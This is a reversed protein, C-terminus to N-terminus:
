TLDNILFHTGNTEVLIIDDFNRMVQISYVGEIELDKKFNVSGPISELFEQISLNSTKIKAEFAQALLKNQPTM